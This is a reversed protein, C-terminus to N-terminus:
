QTSFSVEIIRVKGEGTTGMLQLTMDVIEVEAPVSFVLRGEGPAIAKTIGLDILTEELATDYGALTAPLMSFLGAGDPMYLTATGPGGEIGTYTYSVSVLQRGPDLVIDEPFGELETVNQAGHIILTGADLTYVEGCALEVNEIPDPISIEPYEVSVEFEQLPSERVSDDQWSADGRSDGIEPMEVGALRLLRMVGWVVVGLFMLNTLLIKIPSRKKPTPRATTQPADTPQVADQITDPPPATTDVTDAASLVEATSRTFVAGCKPCVRDNKEFNVRKGCSPCPQKM